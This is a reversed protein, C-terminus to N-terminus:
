VDFPVESPFMIDGRYVRRGENFRYGAKRSKWRWQAAYWRNADICPQCRCGANYTTRLGHERQELPIKKNPM